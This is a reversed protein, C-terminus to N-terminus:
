GPVTHVSSTIAAAQPSIPITVPAGVVINPMLTQIYQKLGYWDGNLLGYFGGKLFLDSTVKLNGTAPIDSPKPLKKHLSANLEFDDGIVVNKEVILNGRELVSPQVDVYGPLPIRDPLKINQQTIKFTTDPEEDPAIVRQARIGIYARGKNQVDIV